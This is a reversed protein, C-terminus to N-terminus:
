LPIALHPRTRTVLKRYIGFAESMTKTGSLSGSIKNVQMLVSLDFFWYMSMLPSIFPSLTGGPVLLNADVGDICKDGFEGEVAAIVRPHVHSKRRGEWNKTCVEKYRAFSVQHKTLSCTGLFGGAAALGAINELARYHNLGEETECGFGLCSVVSPLQLMQIAALTIFDQLITGADVEDGRMLCDVGGDVAVVSDAGEIQVIRRLAEYAEVVGAKPSLTYFPGPMTIETNGVNAFAAPKALTTHLPVAGLIDYGGGVGVYLIKEGTQITNPINLM